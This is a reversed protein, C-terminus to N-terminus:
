RRGMNCRATAAQSPRRLATRPSSAFMSGVRHGELVRSSGAVPTGCACRATKVGRVIRRGDPVFVCSCQGRGSARGPVLLGRRQRRGPLAAATFEGWVIRRGDPRVFACAIVWAGIGKSCACASEGSDADWLRLRRDDSGSVIRRGTPAPLVATDLAHARASAATPTGCACGAPRTERVIRRGDPSPAPSRTQHGKTRQASAATPTGCACRATTPEGLRHALRRPCLACAQGTPPGQYASAATGDRPTAPMRNDGPRHAPRRPSRLGHGHGSARPARAPARRQRRGVAAAHRRAGSVIRGATPALRLGHGLESARRARAPVRRQPTGCGCGGKPRREGLRHAPRRPRLRPRHGLGSARGPRVGPVRRQRCGVAAAHPRRERSSAGGGTLSRLRPTFLGSARRVAPARRQRRGPGPTGDISGSAGATPPSPAPTSLLTGHICM